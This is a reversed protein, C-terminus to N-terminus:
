LVGTAVGVAYLGAVLAVAPRIESFRGSLLMIVAHAVFGLGIGHSISFGFPMMIACVWAPAASSMDNWNINRMDATMLFGVYILAPATAYAPIFDLLPSFFLAILFLVGVTVATLGTKGGAAIGAGSEVYTTVSSVGIVSGAATASSDSLMAKRMAPFRGNEDTMGAKSATAMLTGSTDFLDVFVFALIVSIMTAELVRSFDLSLFVESMSPPMAVLGNFQTLGMFAAIISVAIVGLFISGPIKKHDLVIILLFGLGALLAGPAALDGLSVLTAPHDVIIGANKLGIITLFLGIGVTIGHRLCAPISNLIWERVKLVSLLFFAVGSVFVAALAQEWTYGMGGVVAFAFFANLGMGPALGAPFNAWFGMLFCGLAAAVATATFVAAKPMGAASMIDPNAFLIYAMTLFTTLGALLEVKVSTNNAQLKFLKELM